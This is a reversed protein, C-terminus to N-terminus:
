PVALPIPQDAARDITVLQDAGLSMWAGVEGDPWHVRVEAGDSDGLGVHIWGLQGGAHGGGVTVEYSTTVEGVRV